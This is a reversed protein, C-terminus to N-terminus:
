NNTMAPSSAAPSNAPATAIAPTKKVRKRAPQTIAVRRLEAHVPNPALRPSGVRASTEVRVPVTLPEYGDLAFTASLEPGVEVTLECPTRCTQGSSTKVEAGLPESEFRLAETPPSSKLFNLSPMPVSCAAVTFGCAVIVIIRMIQDWWWKALAAASPRRFRWYWGALAVPGHLGLGGRRTPALRLDAWLTAIILDFTHTVTVSAPIGNFRQGDHRRGCEVSISVAAQADDLRRADRRGDRLFEALRFLTAAKCGPPTSKRTASFATGPGALEDPSRRWRRSRSRIPSYGRSAATSHTRRLWRTIRRVM